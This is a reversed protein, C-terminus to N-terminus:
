CSPPIFMSVCRTIGHYDRRTNVKENPFLQISKEIIAGIKNEKIADRGFAEWPVHDALSVLGSEHRLVDSVLTDEKGM